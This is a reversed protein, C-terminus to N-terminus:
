THLTGCYSSSNFHALKPMLYANLGTTVKNIHASFIVQFTGCYTPDFAEILQMGHNYYTASFM